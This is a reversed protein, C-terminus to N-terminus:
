IDDSSGRSNRSGRQNTGAQKEDHHIKIGREFLLNRNMTDYSHKLAVQLCEMIHGLNKITCYSWLNAAHDSNYLKIKIWHCVTFEKSRPIQSTFEIWVDTTALTNDNIDTQFSTLFTRRGWAVYALNLQIYLVVGILKWM